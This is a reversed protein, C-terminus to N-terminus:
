WLEEMTDAMFVGEIQVNGEVEVAWDRATFGSPLRFPRKNAVTITKKVADDVYLRFTVPYSVAQVRAATFNHRKAEITKSKWVFTMNGITDSDWAYVENPSAETFYLKGDIQDFYGSTGYEDTFVVSQKVPDFIFGGSDPLGLAAGAGPLADYFGFYADKYFYGHVTEPDILAWTRKDFVGESILTAGSTNIGILGDSSAYVAGAGMDVISRSSSCAQSKELKNVSLVEPHNGIIVYPYGKTMVFLMNGSSSLGIVDFDVSRIYDEPWAHGQYPESFYITNNVFGALMGNAMATIGRLGTPPPSWTATTLAEGLEADTKCDRYPESVPFPVEAVLLYTTTGIGTGISRYIRVKQILYPGAPAGAFNTLDVCEDKNTYAVQSPDAPPGEEGFNNVFTYTYVRAIRDAAADEATGAIDWNLQVGEAPKQYIGIDLILDPVPVGLAYSVEPYNTGGGQTALVSDTVRPQDTGTFAIRNLNNNEIPIRAVNVEELWHCWVGDKIEFLTKIDGNQKGLTATIEPQWYPRINGTILDTNLAITANADPLLKDSIVPKMGGFGFFSIKSM